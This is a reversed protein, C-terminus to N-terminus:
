AHRRTLRGTEKAELIRGTRADVEVFVKGKARWSRVDFHVKWVQGGKVLKAHDLRCDYRRRDCYTEAVDVAENRSLMPRERVVKVPRPAREEVVVTEVPRVHLTCGSTLSLLALLSGIITTRM